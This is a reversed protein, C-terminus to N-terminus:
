EGKTNKQISEVALVLCEIFDKDHVFEINKRFIICWGIDAPTITEIHPELWNIIQLIYHGRGFADQIPPFGVDELRKSKNRPIM